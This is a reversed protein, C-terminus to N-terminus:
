RGRSPLGNPPQRSSWGPGRGVINIKSGFRGIRHGLINQAALPLIICLNISGDTVTNLLTNLLTDFGFKGRCYLRLNVAKNVDSPKGTRNRVRGGGM